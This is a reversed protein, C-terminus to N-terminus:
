SSGSMRERGPRRADNRFVPAVSLPWAPCAISPLHADQIAPRDRKGADLQPVWLGTLRPQDATPRRALQTTPTPQVLPPLRAASTSPARELPLRLPLGM